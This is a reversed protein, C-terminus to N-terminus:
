WVELRLSLRWRGHIGDMKQIWVQRDGGRHYWELWFPGLRQSHIANPHTM